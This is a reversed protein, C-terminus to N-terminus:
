ITTGEHMNALMCRAISGSCLYVHKIQLKCYIRKESISKLKLLHLLKECHNIIKKYFM